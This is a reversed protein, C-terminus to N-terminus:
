EPLKPPTKANAKEAEAILSAPGIVDSLDAGLRELAIILAARVPDSKEKKLRARLAKESGTSRIDALWGAANIRVPQRKDDLLPEIRKPLDTAARLLAMAQLRLPRKEAVAIETLRPLYRQPVAPLMALVTLTRDLPVPRPAPRLGLAEDFVEMTDALWPWVADGALADLATFARDPGYSDPSRTLIARLDEATALDRLDFRNQASWERLLEVGFQEHAYTAYGLGLLARVDGYASANLIRLAAALPLPELVSRLWKRGEPHARVEQVLIRVPHLRGAEPAERPIPAAATLTAFAGEIEDRTFPPPPPNSRSYRQNYDETRQRRFAEIVEMLAVFGICAEDSPAPITDSGTDRRPPVAIAEGTIALYGGEGVEVADSVAEIEIIAAIAAQVKAAKEVRARAELLAIIDPTAARGAAEVLAHRTDIDGTALHRELVGPLHAPDLRALASAAHARDTKDFPKTLMAVLLAEIEPVDAVKHHEILNIAGARHNPQAKRVADALAAPYTRLYKACTESAAWSDTLTSVFRTDDRMLLMAFLDAMTGGAARVHAFAAELPIAAAWDIRYNIMLKHLGGGLMASLGKLVLERADPKQNWAVHIQRAAARIELLRVIQVGDAIEGRVVALNTAGQMDHISPKAMQYASNGRLNEQALPAMAALLERDEGTTVFRLARRGFGRAYFELRQLEAVLAPHLATTDVPPQAAETLAAQVAEGIAALGKRGFVKRFVGDAGM